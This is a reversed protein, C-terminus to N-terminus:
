RRIYNLTLVSNPKLLLIRSFYQVVVWYRSFLKLIFVPTCSTHFVGHDLGDAKLVGFYFRHFIVYVYPTSNRSRLLRFCGVMMM